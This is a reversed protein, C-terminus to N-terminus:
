ATLRPGGAPSDDGAQPRLPHHALFQAMGVAIAGADQMMLLHNVDPVVHTETQPLWSRLLQVSEEYLPLSRSGRVCLIPQSVRKAVDADFKWGALAPMEVDFFTRVDTEAQKPGQLAAGGISRCEDDLSATAVV